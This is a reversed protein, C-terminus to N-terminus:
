EAYPELVEHTPVFRRWRCLVARPTSAELFPWGCIAGSRVESTCGSGGVEGSEPNAVLNASRNSPVLALPVFFLPGERRLPSREVFGRSAVGGTGGADPASM